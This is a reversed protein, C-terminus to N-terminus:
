LTCLETVEQEGNAMAHRHGIKEVRLFELGPATIRPQLPSELYGREIFALGRERLLM